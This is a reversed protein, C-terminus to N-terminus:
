RGLRLWDRFDAWGLSARWGAEAAAHRWRPAWAPEWASWRLGGWLALAVLLLVGLVALAVIAPPAGSADQARAAQEIREDAATPAANPAPAPQPAAATPAPTSTAPVPASTTPTPPSKSTSPSAGTSTHPDQAGALGVPGGGLAGALAVVALVEHLSRRM